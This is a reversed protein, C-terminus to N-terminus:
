RARARPSTTSRAVAALTGSTVSQSLSRQLDRAAVAFRRRHRSAQEPRRMLALEYAAHGAGGSGRLGEGGPRQLGSGHAGAALRDAHPGLSPRRARVGREADFDVAASLLWSVSGSLRASELDDLAPRGAARGASRHSRSSPRAPSHIMGDGVVYVVILTLAIAGYLKTAIQATSAGASPAHLVRSAAGNARKDPGGSPASTALASQVLGFAPRAGRALVRAPGGTEDGTLPTSRM